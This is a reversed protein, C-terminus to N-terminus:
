NDELEKKIETFENEVHKLKSKLEKILATGDKVKKLGLEVDVEEQEDFWTAIAQLKKLSDKITRAEDKENTPM